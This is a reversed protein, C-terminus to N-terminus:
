EIRLAQIHNGAVNVEIGLPPRLDAGQAIAGRVWINGPMDKLRLPDFVTRSCPNGVMPHKARFDYDDVLKQLDAIYELQCRGYPAELSFAWYSSSQAGTGGPLRVILAPVNASSAPDRFFFEKSSWAAALESVTAIEPHTQTAVPPAPRTESEPTPIVIQPAAEVPPPDPRKPRFVSRGVFFGLILILAVSASLAVVPNVGALPNTPRRPPLEVGPISPMEAKFRDPPSQSAM